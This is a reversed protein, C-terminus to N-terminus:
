PNIRSVLSSVDKRKLYYNGSETVGVIESAVLYELAKPRFDRTGLRLFPAKAYSLKVASSADFANQRDLDQIIVVFARKIRWGNVKRTLMYVGVLVMVGIIIQATESM